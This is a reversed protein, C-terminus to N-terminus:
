QERKKYIFRKKGCDWIRFLGNQNAFEHETIEPPCGSQNKKQSQKSLLQHMKPSYYVYDASLDGNFTFGNKSYVNGTSYRNDSWTIVDRDIMKLSNKILKGVGGVVQVGSKFALRNLTYKSSDRHHKAYSVCGILEGDISFLGFNRDIRHEGGQIHNNRFFDNQKINIEAFKLNRAFFRVDFLGLKSKLYSKIQPKRTEWEKDWITILQIGNDNCYKWKKYHYNKDDKNLECHWYSGCYEIALNLKDDYMDIERREGSDLHFHKKIFNFGFSNLYDKLEQEGFSSNKTYIEEPFHEYGYLEMKKKSASNVMITNSVIKDRILNYGKLWKILTPYSIHLRECMDQYTLDESILLKLHEKSPIDKKSYKSSNTQLNHQDLWTQIQTTTTSFKRKLEEKSAGNEVLSVFLNIDPCSNSVTRNNAERSAQAHNKRTIGYHILWKRVTPNSTNYYRALDSISTARESYKNFLDEKSPMEINTSTDIDNKKLIRSITSRSVLYKKAIDAM